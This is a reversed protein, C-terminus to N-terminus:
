LKIQIKMKKAREIKDRLKKERDAEDKQKIENLRKFDGEIQKFEVFDKRVEPSSKAQSQKKIMAELQIEHTHDEGDSIEEVNAMGAAEAMALM